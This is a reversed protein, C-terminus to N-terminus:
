APPSRASTATSPPAAGRRGTGVVIFFQSGDTAPSGSNAMALAGAKYSRSPRRSAATSSLLRARGVGIGTPDGGQDVFGTVVRHFWTGDYFHYSSLFVFNNVTRPDQRASGSPSRGPMPSWTATYTKATNICMPPAQAFKTYHPIRRRHQPLRGQGPGSVLPVSVPPLTTTTTASSTTSTPVPTPRRRPPRPRGEAALRELQGPCNDSSSWPSWRRRGRHHASPPAKPAKRVAAHAPREHDPQPTATLTQRVARRRLTASSARTKSTASYSGPPGAPRRLTVPLRRPTAKSTCFNPPEETASGLPDAVHGIVHGAHAPSPVLGDDDYRGHAVLGVLEEVHRGLDRTGPGPPLHVHEDRGTLALGHGQQAHGQM